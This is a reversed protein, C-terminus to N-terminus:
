SWYYNEKLRGDIKGEKNFLIRPLFGSIPFLIVPKTDFIFTIWLIIYLFYKKIILTHLKYGIYPFFKNIIIRM